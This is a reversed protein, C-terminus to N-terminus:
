GAGAHDIIVSSSFIGVLFRVILFAALTLASGAGASGLFLSLVATVLGFTVAASVVLLFVAGTRPLTAFGAAGSAAALEVGGAVGSAAALEVGGTAVLAAALDVADVAVFAVALDVGCTAVSAGALAAGVAAAGELVGAAGEVGGGGWVLGVGSGGVAGGEERAGGAEAM